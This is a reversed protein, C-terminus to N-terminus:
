TTLKQHYRPWCVSCRSHKGDQTRPNDYYLEYKRYENCKTCVKGDDDKYPTRNYQRLPRLEQGRNVQTYHGVCLGLNKSPKECGEFKCKM